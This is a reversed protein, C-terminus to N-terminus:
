SIVGSVAFVRHQISLEGPFRSALLAAHERDYAKVAERDLSAAVGNCARMRGRWAEHTFPTFVDYSWSEIDRFGGIGMQTAQEPFMGHIWAEGSWSPNYKHVLEESANAVNGPLNLYCYSAILLRGGPALVRKVERITQVPDFWWWCQAATVLEFAADPQKTAEAVGAEVRVALGSGRARESLVALMEPSRDLATVELGRAALGLAMAGTGAGLDLARMKPAIWKEATLRMFFSDPFGPRHRGYDGATKGFDVHTSM